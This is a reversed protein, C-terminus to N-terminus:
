SDYEEINITRQIIEMEKNFIWEDMRRQLGIAMTIGM